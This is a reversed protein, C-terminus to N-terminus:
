SRWFLKLHDELIKHFDVAYETCLEDLDFILDKIYDEHMFEKIDGEESYSDQRQKWILMLGYILDTNKANKYNLKPRAM